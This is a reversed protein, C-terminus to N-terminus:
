YSETLLSALLIGAFTIVLFLLAIGIVRWWSHVPGGSAVHTELAKGQHKKLLTQTIVLYILPIAINPIKDIISQPLLLITGFILITGLITYKWTTGVWQAQNLAKFNQAMFYGAALPGGLFTGVWIANATFIKNEPLVEVTSEHENSMM